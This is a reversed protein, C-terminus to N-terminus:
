ESVSIRAPQALPAVIKIALAFPVSLLIVGAAGWCLAEYGVISLLTGALLSM